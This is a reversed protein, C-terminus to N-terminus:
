FSFLSMEVIVRTQPNDWVIDVALVNVSTCSMEYLFRMVNDAYGENEMRIRMDLIRDLEYTYIGISEAATFSIVRLMNAEALNTIYSLTQALEYYNLLQRRATLIAFEQLNYEYALIHAASAYYQSEQREISYRTNRIEQALPLVFFLMVLLIIVFNITVFIIIPNTNRKQWRRTM